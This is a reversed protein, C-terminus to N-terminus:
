NNTKKKTLRKQGAKKQSGVVPRVNNRRRWNRIERENNLRQKLKKTRLHRLKDKLQRVTIFGTDQASCAKLLMIWEWEQLQIDDLDDDSGIPPLKEESVEEVVPPPPPTTVPVSEGVVEVVPSTKEEASM